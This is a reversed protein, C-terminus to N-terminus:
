RPLPKRNRVPARRVKIRHWDGLRRLLGPVLLALWLPSGGVQRWQRALGVDAHLSFRIYEITSRMRQRWGHWARHLTIDELHYLAFGKPNGMRLRFRDSSLGDAQYECDQVVENVCRLRYRHAMRKWILSPRVHREGAFVPYPYQRLVETRLAGKKDGGVGLRYRLSLYDADLVPSPYRDKDKVRGNITILGEVGVFGDREAAPIAEWHRWFIALAEPLLRDDSDLNVFFQGRALAVGANHAAHKGQNEQRHYTVPFDVGGRWAAVLAETGDTSGDDVIVLEFDRCTQAAVSALARPLLHARNYTPIFISFTPAANL